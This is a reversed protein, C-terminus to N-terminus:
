NRTLAKLLVLSCLSVTLLQVFLAVADSHFPDFWSIHLHFLHFTYVGISTGFPPSNTYFSRITPITITTSFPLTVLLSDAELKGHTVLATIYVSAVASSWNFLSLCIALVKTIASRKINVELVRSEIETAISGNGPDPVFTNISAIDHSHLVFDGLTGTVAFMSIRLSHNTTPDIAFVFARFVFHDFLVKLQKSPDWQGYKHIRHEMVFTFQDQASGVYHTRFEEPNVNLSESLQRGLLSTRVTRSYRSPLASNLYTM